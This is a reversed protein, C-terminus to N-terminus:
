NKWIPNAIVLKNREIRPIPKTSQYDDFEIDGEYFKKGQFKIYKQEDKGRHSFGQGRLSDEAADSVKDGGFLRSWLNENIVKFNNFGKIHKM